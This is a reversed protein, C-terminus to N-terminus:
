QNFPGYFLTMLLYFIPASMVVSDISDLMGGRGPMINGSDKVEASRKFVSEVLDGVISSIAMFFGIAIIKLVSGTFIEPWILYGLIGSAISGIFGGAFGAVSKNPSAKVVGRNNKGFLMGLLWAISDCMFVMLIFVTVAPCTMNKGNVTWFTMRSVFTILFGAYTVIFATKPIRKNSDKFDSAKFVEVALLFLEAVIYAFTIVESTINFSTDQLFVAYVAAMLPIFTGAAVVAKKDLLKSDKSLMDYLESASVASIVCLLMHLAIHNYYPALIIAIVIPVGLFFVLLRSIVKSM